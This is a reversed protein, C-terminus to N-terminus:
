DKLNVKIASVAFGATAVLGGWLPSAVEVLVRISSTLLTGVVILVTITLGAAAGFVVLLAALPVRVAVYESKFRMRQTLDDM